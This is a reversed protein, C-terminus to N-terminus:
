TTRNRPELPIAANIEVVVVGDRTTLEVRTLYKVVDVGAYKRLLAAVDVFVLDGEMRLGAPLADLFRAASGALSALAGHSVLKLILLPSDPLQPQREVHLQVSIRPLWAPKRLRVGVEMVNGVRARIDLERVADAFRARLVAALLRDPIPITVSGNAGRFDSFNKKQQESLLVTWWPEVKNM